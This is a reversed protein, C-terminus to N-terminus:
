QGIIVIHKADSGMRQSGAPLGIFHYRHGGRDLEAFDDTRIGLQVQIMLSYGQNREKLPHAGIFYAGLDCGIEVGIAKKNEIFIGALQDGPSM